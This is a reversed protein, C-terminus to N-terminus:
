RIFGRESTRLCSLLRDIEPGDCEQEVRALAPELRLKSHFLLHFAHRLTDITDSAFNRRKLGITNVEVLQM